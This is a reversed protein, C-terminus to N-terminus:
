SLVKSGSAAQDKAWWLFSSVHQLKEFGPGAHDVLVDNSWTILRGIPWRTRDRPPLELGFVRNAIERKGGGNPSSYILIPLFRDPQVICLVKTLLAEKFGRMELAHPGEILHTLRDELPVHDPGYLLYGIVGRTRQVAEDDGLENWATNFVSMNGPHAGTETNAFDKLARPDCHQLGEASFIQQYRAWYEAVEPQPVPHDAIFQGKLTEVSQRRAPTLTHATHFATRQADITDRQKPAPQKDEGRWWSHTCANCRIHRRDGAGKEVLDLDDSQCQPCTVM